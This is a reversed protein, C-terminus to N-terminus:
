RFLRRLEERSYREGSLGAIVEDLSPRFNKVRYRLPAPGGGLQVVVLFQRNNEKAIREASNVAEEFARNTEVVIIPVTEQLTYDFPGSEHRVIRRAQALLQEELFGWLADRDAIAVTGAAIQDFLDTLEGILSGNNDRTTPDMDLDLRKIVRPIAQVMLRQYSELFQDLTLRDAMYDQALTSWRWVSEQEDELGRIELKERGHGLFPRFKADMEEDLPVDVMAFPGVIPEEVKTCVDLILRGMEPSTLFMLFDAARDNQERTKRIIGYVPLPAGVGRFRTRVIDSSTVPPPHFAGWEFQEDPRLRGIDRELVLVAQSANFMMAARQSLFLNYVGMPDAGHFGRQWYNAFKRLYTYVERMRPGDFALRGDLIAQIRREPSLNVLLDNFPDDFNVEFDADVEPDFLFDGPQAMIEPVLDYFWADTFLRVVWGVVGGWYGEKDGPMAVPIIGADKIAQCVEMYEEWTEPVDLGLRDFIEQNYFIGIEIYNLPIQPYDGGEALMRLYQPEFSDRWRRGTYPNESDLYPQLNIAKGSEYFGSGFNFNYIDPATEMGGALATRIWTAYGGVSIIQIRVDVDPHIKMYEQAVAEFADRYNLDAVAMRIVTRAHAPSSLALLAVVLPLLFRKTM